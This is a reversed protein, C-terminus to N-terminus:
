KYTAEFEAFLQNLVTIEAASLVYDIDDLIEKIVYFEELNKIKGRKIVKNPLNKIKATLVEISPFSNSNLNLDLEKQQETSLYKLGILTDMLTEKLAKIGLSTNQNELATLVNIPSFFITPDIGGIKAQFVWIVSLIGKYYHYNSQDIKLM